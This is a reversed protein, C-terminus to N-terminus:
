RTKKTDGFLEAIVNIKEGMSPMTRHHREKPTQEEKTATQSSRRKAAADHERKTLEALEDTEDVRLNVPMPPSVFRMDLKKQVELCFSSVKAKCELVATLKQWSDQSQVVVRYEVFGLDTEVRTLRFGISRSAFERPRDHVFQQVASKFLLVKSLAVDVGFKMDVNLQAKDSRNANIIRSRALSGNSM